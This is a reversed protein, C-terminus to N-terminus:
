WIALEKRASRMDSQCKKEKGVGAERIETVPHTSLLGEVNSLYHTFSCIVMALDPTSGTHM